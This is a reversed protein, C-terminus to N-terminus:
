AWPMWAWIVAVVITPLMNAPKFKKEWILNVGVCFILMSGTLSLNDLAPQTMIPQLFRSLLTISGQFLGVPIAAFLCGKGLSAAMVCVILMDLVAKLALTSYDGAIGDQISGVVAMAGICITLSTTVFANVFHPDKANGTKQRLWAGFQEIRGELNAMEGLLSGLAFCLVMMVTGGSTLKGNQVTLMKELTGGIGVFLICLGTAQMLTDQYRPTLRKGCLLGILGGLLVGAICAARPTAIEIGLTCAIAYTQAYGDLVGKLYVVEQSDAVFPLLISLRTVGCGQATEFLAHLFTQFLLPNAIMMRCGRCSLDPNIAHLTQIRDNVWDDPRSLHAALRSREAPTGPLFADLPRDPLRICLQVQACEAIKETWLRTQIRFLQGLRADDATEPPDLLLSQMLLRQAETRMLCEEGTLMIGDTEDVAELGEVADIETFYKMGM